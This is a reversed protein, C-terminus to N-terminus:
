RRLVTAGPRHAALKFLQLRKAEILARIRPLAARAAREGAAVVEARLNFSVSPAESLDPRIVVDADKLENDALAHEMIILSQAMLAGTSDFKKAATPQHTVDVAIVIDAGLARAVRVPVPSVLGGDVYERGDMDLPQFVAPVSSSARVATGTDGRNFAVLRGNGLDTAVAVFPLDLRGIPRDGLRRDIYEQLRQGNVFGRNPYTFEIVQERQLELAAEVLADGRIGGAYLAGVVSGASTGVIADPKIGNEDLVRLVGTHAFGRAAGGSLVIVVVPHDTRKIPALPAASAQRAAPVAPAVTACGALSAVLGLALLGITIRITM